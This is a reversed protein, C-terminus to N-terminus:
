TGQYMKNSEEQLGLVPWFKGARNCPKFHDYLAALFTKRALTV